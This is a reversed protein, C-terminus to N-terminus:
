LSPRARTPAPEPCRDAVPYRILSTRWKGSFLHEAPTIRYVHAFPLGTRVRCPARVDGWWVRYFRRKTTALSRAYGLGGALLRVDRRTNEGAASNLAGWPSRSEFSSRALCLTSRGSCCM